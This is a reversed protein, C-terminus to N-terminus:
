RSRGHGAVLVDVRVRPEQGDIERPLQEGAGELVRQIMQEIVRDIQRREIRAKPVVLRARRRIRRRHQQLHHEEGVRLADHATAPDLAGALLVHREDGEAAVGRGCKVVIACNTLVSPSSMARTKAATTAIQSASPKIPRSINAISPTFSGLLADFCRLPVRASKARCAVFSSAAAVRM